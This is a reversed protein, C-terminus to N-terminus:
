AMEGGGVVASPNGVVEGTVTFAVAAAAAAAELRSLSPTSRVRCVLSHVHTAHRGQGYVSGDGEAEAIAAVGRLEM